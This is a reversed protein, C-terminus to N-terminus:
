GDLNERYFQKAAHEMSAWMLIQNCGNSVQGAISGTSTVWSVSVSSIEGSKIKEITQELLEIADNNVMLPTEIKKIDAM